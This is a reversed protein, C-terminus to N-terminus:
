KKLETIEKLVWTAVGQKNTTSYRILGVNKAFYYFTETVSQQKSSQGNTNQYVLKAESQVVITALPKGNWNITTDKLFQSHINATVVLSTGITFSESQVKEGLRSGNQYTSDENVIGRYYQGNIIMYHGVNKDNIETSSDAINTSDYDKWNIIVAGDKDKRTIDKYSLASTSLNKYVFTKPSSLITAPYEYDLPVFPKRSAYVDTASLKFGDYPNGRFRVMKFFHQVDRKMNEDPLKDIATAISYSHNNQITVFYFMEKINADIPPNYFHIFKGPVGGILTDIDMLTYIKYEPRNRMGERIGALTIEFLNKSSAKLPINNNVTIQYYIHDKSYQLVRFGNISTDEPPDFLRVTLNSDVIVQVEDTAQCFVHLSILCFLFLLFKSM